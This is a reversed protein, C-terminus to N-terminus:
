LRPGAYCADFVRACAITDALPVVPSELLGARICRIVEKLQAVSGNVATGLQNANEEQFTELINGSENYLSCTSGYSPVPMVIYGDSGILVAEQPVSALITAQISMTCKPFSLLLQATGDVGTDTMRLMSRVDTITLGTIYQALEIAYVGIDYLAGGALRPNYFRNDPAAPAKFGLRINGGVLRGIRGQSIWQRAQNVTALFRSWMAEMVFLKKQRAANRVALADRETCVMSKECLVHKGHELSLMINEYHFNHTTAIYVLDIPVSQLMEAYNGFYAPIAFKEAFAKARGVDKSAAAAVHADPIHSACEVLRQAITGPGIIGINM